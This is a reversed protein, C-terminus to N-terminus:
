EPLEFSREDLTRVRANGGRIPSLTIEIVSYYITDGIITKSFTAITDFERTVLINCFKREPLWRDGIQYRIKYMGSDINSMSAKHNAHVYIGRYPKGSDERVLVIVADHLSNNEVNLTNKELIKGESGFEFGNEPQFFIVDACKDGPLEQSARVPANGHKGLTTLSTGSATIYWIIGVAGILVSLIGSPPWRELLKSDTDYRAHASTRRNPDNYPEAAQEHVVETGLILVRGCSCRMRKGILHNSITYRAGCPCNTTMIPDVLTIIWGADAM